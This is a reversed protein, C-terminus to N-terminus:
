VTASEPQEYKATSIVSAIFPAIASKCDKDVGLLGNTQLTAVGHTHAWISRGASDIDLGRGLRTIPEAFVAEFKHLCRLLSPFKYRDVMRANFILQFYASNVVAFNLYATSMNELCQQVDTTKRREDQLINLLKDAGNEALLALLHEKSAFHRYPATQSVGCERALSRLSLQALRGNELAKLASSLLSSYLNGHHYKEGRSGSELNTM